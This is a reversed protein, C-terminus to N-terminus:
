MEGLSASITSGLFRDPDASTTFPVGTAYSVSADVVAGAIDASHAMRVRYAHDDLHDHPNVRGQEPYGDDSRMKKAHHILPQAADKINAIALEDPTPALRVRMGPISSLDVPFKAESSHKKLADLVGQRIQGFSPDTIVEEVGKYATVVDPNNTAAVLRDAHPDYALTDVTSHGFDQPGWQTTFGGVRAVDPVYLINLLRSGHGVPIPEDTDQTPTVYKYADFPGADSLATNQDRERSGARYTDLWVAYLEVPTPMAASENLFDDRMQSEADRREHSSM